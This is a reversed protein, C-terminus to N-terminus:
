IEITVSSYFVINIGGGLIWCEYDPISPSYVMWADRREVDVALRDGEVEWKREEGGAIMNKVRQVGPRVRREDM